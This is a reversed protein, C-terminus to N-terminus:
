LNFREEISPLVSEVDEKYLQMARRLDGSKFTYGQLTPPQKNAYVTVIEPAKIGANRAAEAREMGTRIVKSNFHRTKASNLFFQRFPWASTVWGDGQEMPEEEPYPLLVFILDVGMEFAQRVRIYGIDSFPTGEIMVSRFFGPLSMSARVGLELEVPLALSTRPIRNSFIEYKGNGENHVSCDFRIESSAVREWDIGWAGENLLIKKEPENNWNLRIKESIAKIAGALLQRPTDEAVMSSSLLVTQKILSLKTFYFVSMPGAEDIGTWVLEQHSCQKLLDDQTRAQSLSSGNIAGGSVGSIIKVEVGHKKFFRLVAPLGGVQSATGYANGGLVLAATRLQPKEAM